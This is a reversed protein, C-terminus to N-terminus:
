RHSTERLRFNDLLQNRAALLQSFLSQTQKEIEQLSNEQMILRRKLEEAAEKCRGTSIEAALHMAADHVERMEKMTGPKENIEKCFRSNLCNKNSCNNGASKRTEMGSLIADFAWFEISKMASLAQLIVSEKGFCSKEEIGSLLGEM